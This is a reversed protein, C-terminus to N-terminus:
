RVLRIPDSIHGACPESYPAEMTAYKLAEIVEAALATALGSNFVNELRQTKNILSEIIELASELDALSNMKKGTAAYICPLSYATDPFSVKYERGNKEIAEALMAKAAGLAQESGTFVTNYLNM